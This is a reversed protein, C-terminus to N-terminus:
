YRYGCQCEYLGFLPISFDCIPCPTPLQLADQQEAHIALIIEAIICKKLNEHVLKCTGLKTHIRGLRL